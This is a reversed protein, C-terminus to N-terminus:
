QPAHAPKLDFCQKKRWFKLTDFRGAYYLEGSDFSIWLPHHALKNNSANPARWDFISLAQEPKNAPNLAHLGLLLPDSTPAALHVALSVNACPRPIDAGYFWLSNAKGIPSEALLMQSENLLLRWRVPEPMQGSLASGILQSPALAVPSPVGDPLELVYQAPCIRHLKIQTDELCRHVLADAQQDMIETLQLNGIALALVGNLEVKLQALDACAFRLGNLKEMSWSADTGALKIAALSLGYGLQQPLAEAHMSFRLSRALRDALGPWLSFARKQSPLLLLTQGISLSM